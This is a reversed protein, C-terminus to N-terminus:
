ALVMEVFALALRIPANWALGRLLCPKRLETQSTSSMRVVPDM